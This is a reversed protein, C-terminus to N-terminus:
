KKYKAAHKACLWRYTNEPMNMRRLEGWQQTKAMIKEKGTTKDKEKAADATRSILKYFSMSLPWKMDARASLEFQYDAIADGSDDELVTHRASWILGLAHRGSAREGIRLPSDAEHPAFGALPADIRLLDAHHTERGAAMQCNRRRRAEVPSGVLRNIVHVFDTAPGVEGNSDIRAVQLRLVLVLDSGAQTDRGSRRRYKERVAPGIDDARRLVAHQHVKRQPLGADRRLQVDIRRGGVVEADALAIM